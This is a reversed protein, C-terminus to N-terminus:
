YRPTLLLGASFKRLFFFVSIYRLTSNYSYNSYPHSLEPFIHNRGSMYYYLKVRHINFEPLQLLTKLYLKFLHTSMDENVTSLKQGERKGELQAVKEEIDVIFDKQFVDPLLGKKDMEVIHKFKIFTQNGFTFQKCPKFGKKYTQFEQFPM